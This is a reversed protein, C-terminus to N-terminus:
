NDMNRDIKFLIYEWGLWKLIMICGVVLFFIERCFGVLYRFIDLYVYYKRVFVFYYVWIFEVMFVLIM